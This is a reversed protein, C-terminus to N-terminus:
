TSCAGSLQDFYVVTGGLTIILDLQVFNTANSCFAIVGEISNEINSCNVFNRVEFHAVYM